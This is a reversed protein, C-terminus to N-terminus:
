GAEALLNLIARRVLEFTERDIRGFCRLVISHDISFIKDARVISPRRLQGEELHPTDLPVIFPRTLPNSTVGAVLLDPGDLNYRDNSLVVVPRIKRRTLDSFPVPVLLLDRQRYPM